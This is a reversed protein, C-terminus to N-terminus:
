PHPVGVAGLIGGFPLGSFVVTALGAGIM